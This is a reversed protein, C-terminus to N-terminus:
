QMFWDPKETMLDNILYPFNDLHAGLLEAAKDAKKHSIALVIEEHEDINDQMSTSRQIDLYRVRDMSPKISEITHWALECDAFVAMMRHFEDDLELFAIENKQSAAQKQQAILQNLVDVENCSIREALKKVVACEIASRVFKGDLVSKIHIRTVFSGRQPLVNILGCDSLKIFAERVPQRSVNLSDSIAKESVRAGPEIDCTIISKKLYEYIQGSVSRPNKLTFSPLNM